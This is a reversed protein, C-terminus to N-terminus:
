AIKAYIYEFTFQSKWMRQKLQIRAAIWIFGISIHARRRFKRYARFTSLEIPSHSIAFLSTGSRNRRMHSYFWRPRNTDCCKKKVHNQNCTTQWVSNVAPLRVFLLQKKKECHLRKTQRENFAVIRSSRNTKPKRHIVPPRHRHLILRMYWM